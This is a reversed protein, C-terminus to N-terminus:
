PSSYDQWAYSWRLYSPSRQNRGCRENGGVSFRYFERALSRAISKGISTKGVGPPGVLLIIKGQVSNKMAGVAIFQLIKEKVHQLGYHDEDLVTEAKM